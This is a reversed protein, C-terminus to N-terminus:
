IKRNPVIDDQASRLIEPLSLWVETTEEDRKDRDTAIPSYGLEGYSIACDHPAYPALTSQTPQTFRLRIVVCAVCVVWIVWIVSVGWLWISRSREAHCSRKGRWRLVRWM